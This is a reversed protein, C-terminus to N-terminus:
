IIHTHVQVHFAPANQPSKLVKCAMHRYYNYRVAGSNRGGKKRGVELVSPPPRLLLSKRKRRATLGGGNEWANVYQSRLSNEVRKFCSYLEEVCTRVRLM